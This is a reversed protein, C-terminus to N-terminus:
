FYTETNSASYRPTQSGTKAHQGPDNKGKEKQVQFSKGRTQPKRREREKEMEKEKKKRAREGEKDSRERERRIKRRERSSLKEEGEDQVVKGIGSEDSFDQILIKPVQMKQAGKEKTKKSQEGRLRRFFGLRKTTAPPEQEKATRETVSLSSTVESSQTVDPSTPTPNVARPNPQSETHKVEADNPVPQPQSTKQPATFLDTSLKRALRSEHYNSSKRVCFDGSSRSSRRGSAQTLGGDNPETLFDNQNHTQSNSDIHLNDTVNPTSIFVNEEKEKEESPGMTVRSTPDEPVPEESVSTEVSSIKGDPEATLSVAEVQKLTEEKVTSTVSDNTEMNKQTETQIERAQTQDDEVQAESHVTLIIEDKEQTPEFAVEDCEEESCHDFAESSETVTNEIVPIVAETETDAVVDKDQQEQVCEPLPLILTEAKTDTRSDIEEVENESEDEAATNEEMKEESEKETQPDFEEEIEEFADVQSGEDAETIVEEQTEAETTLNTDTFTEEEETESGQIPETRIESVETVTDVQLQQNNKSETEEEPKMDFQIMQEESQDAPVEMEKHTYADATVKQTESQNKEVVASHESESVEEETEETMDKVETEQDQGKHTQSQSHSGLEEEQIYHSTHENLQLINQVTQDKAPSQNPEIGVSTVESDMREDKTEKPYSDVMETMVTEARDNEKKVTETEETHETLMNQIKAMKKPEELLEKENSQGKLKVESQEKCAEVDEEEQVDPVKNFNLDNRSRWDDKAGLSLHRVVKRGGKGLRQPLLSPSLSLTSASRSLPVSLNGKQREKRDWDEQNQRARAWAVRHGQCRGRPDFTSSPRDKRWKELEKETQKELDKSSLPVSCVEAIFADDEDQVQERVGRLRELTEMQGQCQRRQEARGLVRRVLVVAVQLLVRVGYCFFLDWVRLLTNFPLHRTFLCMLWDTAFMLPEVEHHQLHKHAAPCTRRLVWTLMGADFLVGELLPSYYGPLYQESIQVLCWFAEEAPMNMLLVAAVPGQAQCYGEEPQYQTFAKLVRFLGRQGHGDKCLFMEHFPFQRGLDREIVDVWSQLAPQSDLLEYLNKNQKMRDTAASLLPWCKARLSAPIGKQCQEKVKSTKKLMMRDWQLIISIWKNERHRVLEPPPGVSGATSGNTLIFGFRDTEPELSVESGADSGSGDEESLKRQAPSSASMM